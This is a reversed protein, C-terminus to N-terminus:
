REGAARVGRHIPRPEPRHALEGAEASGLLRVASVVVEELVPLRAEADGEVEGREHTVVGVVRARQALYPLAADGDRAQGVHLGEEGPDREVLDGDGHRDVTRRDDEEAEVDDRRLLLAYRRLLQAAGDLVVDQLLILRLVGPD